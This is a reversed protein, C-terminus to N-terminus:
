TWVTNNSVAAQSPASVVAGRTGATMANNDVVNNRSDGSVTIAAEMLREPRSDRVINDSVKCYTADDLAVGEYLPDKLQCSAVHVQECRRLTISAAPEPAPKGCRDLVNGTFSCGTCEDLLVANSPEVPRKILISAFTNSGVVASRCRELLLCHTVGEYITNGTISVRTANEIRVNCQRSGLVNSALTILRAGTLGDDPRGVVHVNAGRDQPTAQITNGVITFESVIGDPAELLVDATPPESGANYEIDNGVIQINHVDGDLQRIGARRNFSIHNGYLNAQHLNVRDFFVGSDACDIIHSGALIFNRNRETLHLGFRCNRILVASIIAQITRILEIGDAQEHGGVIELGGVMPMRERDWTAPQVSRPNGTGEHHGVIRLAPGPGDMLIRATGAQGTIARYGGSLDIEIPRTIRYSGASLVIRGGGEDVARQLAATDDRSGDGAAGFARVDVGGAQAAPCTALREGRVSQSLGGLAAGAWVSQTVFQRRNM